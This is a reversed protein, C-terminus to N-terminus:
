SPPREDEIIAKPTQEEKAPLYKESWFMTRTALFSSISLIFSVLLAFTRIDKHFGNATIVDIYISIQITILFAFGSIMAIIAFISFTFAEKKHQQLMTYGPLHFAYWNKVYFTEGSAFEVIHYPDLPHKTKIISSLIGYRFQNSKSLLTSFLNLASSIVLSYAKIDPGSPIKLGFFVIDFSISQAALALYFYIPAQILVASLIWSNAKECAERLDKEFDRSFIFLDPSKAYLAEVFRETQQKRTLRLVGYKKDVEQMARRVATRM